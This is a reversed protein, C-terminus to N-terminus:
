TCAHKLLDAIVKLQELKSNCKQLREISDFLINSCEAFTWLNNSPNGNFSDGPAFNTSTSPNHYRTNTQTHPHNHTTATTDFQTHSTSPTTTRAYDAFTPRSPIPLQTPRRPPVMRVTNAQTSTQTNAQTRQNPARKNRANNRAEEYKQRFPCNVDNAKHNHAIKASFCNFCKFETNTENTHTLCDKALHPGACLMCVTYRNCQSAGHGFMLCRYCQTPGNRKPKYPLWKVVHHYIYKVPELTKKNVHAANFHLLYLKNNSKTEFMTVKTPQVKLQEKISEEIHKTEIAPLGSLVVKFIKDDKEPHSFFSIQENKKIEEIIKNKDDISAPFIKRGVSVIKIKCDLKLDDFIPQINTEHDTIVIPAIHTKKEKLIQDTQMADDDDALANFRNSTPLQISNLFKPDRKKVKIKERPKVRLRKTVTKRNDAM